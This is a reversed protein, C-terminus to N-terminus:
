RAHRVEKHDSPSSSDGSEAAALTEPRSWEALVDFFGSVNEAIQRGDERSVDHKLRSAWFARPDHLTAPSAGVESDWQSTTPTADGIVPM